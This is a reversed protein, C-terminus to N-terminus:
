AKTIPRYDSIQQAKGSADYTQGNGIQGRLINLFRGISNQMGQLIRENILLMEQCRQLEVALEQWSELLQTSTDSQLSLLINEWDGSDVAYNAEQLWQVRQQQRDDLTQVLGSKLDALSRIREHDNKEFASRESSLCDILKAVDLKDQGFTQQINNALSQLQAVPRVVPTAHERLSQQRAHNSFQKKM